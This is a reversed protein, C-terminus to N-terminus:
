HSSLTLVHGFVQHGAVLGNGAAKVLGTHGKGGRIGARGARLYQLINGLVVFVADGTFPRGILLDGELRSDACGEYAAAGERRHLVDAEVDRGVRQQGEGVGADVAAHAEDRSVVGSQVGGLVLLIVAEVRAHAFEDHELGGIGLLGLVHGDHAILEALLEVGGDHEAHGGADAVALAKHLEAFHLLLAFLFVYLVARLIVRDGGHGLAHVGGNFLAPLAQKLVSLYTGEVALLPVGVLDAYDGGARGILVRTLHEPVLGGVELAAHGTRHRELADLLEGGLHLLKVDDLLELGVHLVQHARGAYLAHALSENGDLTLEVGVDDALGQGTLDRGGDLVVLGDDGAPRRHEAGAARM